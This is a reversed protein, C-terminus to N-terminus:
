RDTSKESSFYSFTTLVADLPEKTLAKGGGSGGYKKKREEEKGDPLSRRLRRQIEGREKLSGHYKVVHMHPAFKKFENMWNSLVSAPVVILHPRSSNNDSSHNNLNPKKSTHFDVDEEEDEDLVVVDDEEDDDEQKKEEEDNDVDDTIDIATADDSGSGGGNRDRLWALFAITQM